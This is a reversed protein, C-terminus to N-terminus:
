RTSRVVRFAVRAPKSRAGTADAATVVLRYAGTALAKGRIRGSFVIRNAGAAGARRLSGRGPHLVCRARRPVHARAVVAVCRSRGKRVAKRRGPITRQVLLRVTARESLRFRIVAGLAAQTRTRARLTAGKAGVAFAKPSISLGTV